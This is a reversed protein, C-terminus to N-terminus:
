SPRDPEDLWIPSTWAMEGNELVIRCYWFEGPRGRQASWRHRLSTGDAAAVEVEEGDRLIHASHIPEPADVSLEFEGTDSALESGMPEGNCSFSIGLGLGTTAFCRRACLAEYLAARTLGKVLVGALAVGVHDGGGIFGFRRGNLLEPVVWHGEEQHLVNTVGPAWPQEGSGRSDQFIEIVPEFSEDYVNWNYFHMADAVHHPPTLIKRGRYAEWLRKLTGGRCTPDVPTYFDLDGDEELYLPNTHGWPGGEHDCGYSGTWEYAPFSVFEGPFYYYSALKRVTIMEAHWMNYAHDTVGGFRCHQVDQMFRYNLHPERDRERLCISISTHAHTQGMARIYESEDSDRPIPNVMSGAPRPSGVCPHFEYDPERGSPLEVTADGVGLQGDSDFWEGSGNWGTHRSDETIAVRLTNEEQTFDIRAEMHANRVLCIPQTWQRDQLTMVSLNPHICQPNRVGQKRSRVLAADEEGFTEAPTGVHQRMLLHLRGDVGEVVESHGAGITGPVSM